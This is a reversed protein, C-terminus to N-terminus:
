RVITRRRADTKNVSLNLSVSQLRWLNFLLQICADNRVREVRAM